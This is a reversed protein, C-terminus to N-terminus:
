RLGLTAKLCADVQQMSGASLDGLIQVIFSRDVTLLNNCSVVSVYRPGSNTEVSPDIEVETTGVARRTRSILVLVTDALLHNYADDQVVLAPRVKRGTRDSYPWDLRVVDGRRIRM